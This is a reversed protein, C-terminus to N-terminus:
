KLLKRGGNDGNGWVSMQHIAIQNLKLLREGQPIGQEIFVANLNEMNSLCILENITAYDRINGKLGPNAERWQKATMGFMAVNLVDAENAYIISAQAQTVEAPILNQKIADTHTRYNIKSLERKASWGLLRQEENKLRQYEKVLLLQFKPSIWMGFHYAIDRHAYTGGYRGAKSCIGIANTREIWTKVSLVFNNSGAANKITGFETCNFDPNYLMEWEGLYEITSKLSLWRFIIHEQLQSRAMDTLSIYDEENYKVVSIDTNQVIIKAMPEISQNGATFTAM